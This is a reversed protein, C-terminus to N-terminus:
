QAEFELFAVDGTRLTNRFAERHNLKRYDFLEWEDASDAKPAYYYSLESEGLVDRRDASVYPDDLTPENLREMFKRLALRAIGQQDSAKSMM